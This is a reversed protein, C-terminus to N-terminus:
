SGEKFIEIGDVLIRFTRGVVVIEDDSTTIKSIGINKWFGNTDRQQISVLYGVNGGIGRICM